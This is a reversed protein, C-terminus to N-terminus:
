HPEEQPSQPEKEEGPRPRLGLEAPVFYRVGYHALKLAENTVAILPKEELWWPSFPPLRSGCAILTVRAGIPDLALRLSRRARRSHLPSTVAVISRAGSREAWRRVAAADEWTSTAEAVVVEAEPPVGADAAVRASLAAEPLPQGVAAVEPRVTGGTFLVVPAFGRRYLEAACRPRDPLEGPLVYLADARPPPPDSVLLFSPLAAFALLGAALLLPLTARRRM